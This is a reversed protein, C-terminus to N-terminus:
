GVVLTHERTARAITCVDGKCTSAIVDVALVGSGPQGLRVEISVPLSELAWSRPGAGLLTPPDASVNVHVPPGQALDLDSDGLDVTAAVNLAAGPSGALAVGGPKAALGGEGVPIETVAGTGPDVAIVRHHNTDAVLLRGDPLVDIGGPEDVPESLQLTRLVGEDWIRLLSNFTDAVALTGDALSAV